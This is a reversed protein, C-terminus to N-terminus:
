HMCSNSQALLFLLSPGVAESPAVADFLEFGQSPLDLTLAGGAPAM